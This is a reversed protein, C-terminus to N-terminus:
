SVIEIVLFPRTGPEPIFASVGEPDDLVVTISTSQSEMISKLKRKLPEVEVGELVEYSELAELFIQLLGEINTIFTQAAAGPSMLMGLEPIMVQAYPSRVVKTKYEAPTEVRLYLRTRRGGRLPVIDSQRFGCKSCKKSVLLVPGLSPVEYEVEQVTMVGRECVPCQTSYEGLKKGYYSLVEMEDTLEGSSM